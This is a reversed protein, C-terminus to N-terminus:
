QRTRNKNNNMTVDTKPYGKMEYYKKNNMLGLFQLGVM